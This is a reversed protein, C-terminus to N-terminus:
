YVKRGLGGVTSWEAAVEVQMKLSVNRQGETWNGSACTGRQQHQCSWHLRPWRPTKARHGQWVGGGGEACDLIGLIEEATRASKHQIVPGQDSWDGAQQLFATKVKTEAMVSFFPLANVQGM